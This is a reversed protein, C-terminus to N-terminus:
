GGAPRSGRALAADGSDGSGDPRRDGRRGRGASILVVAGPLTSALVLLGYAASAAVGDEASMGLAAWLGAAAAERVGWGAVTIPILMSLLVPPVLPLLVLFPTAVGVARAAALFMAVYTGLVVASTVLQVVIVDRALLAAHLDRWISPAIRARKLVLAAVVVGILGAAALALTRGRVAVAVPLALLALVAGAAMVVQGSARELIVARAAPGLAGAPLLARTPVAGAPAMEPVARGHRWARSVDGMVGGPLLQNLFTALYYESLATGFPLELGLRGATLRWRFALLAMQPLSIALAILVWIPEMDTLRALLADGEILWVVVALLAASVLIRLVIRTLRM